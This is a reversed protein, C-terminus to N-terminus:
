WSGEGHPRAPVPSAPADGALAARLTKEAAAVAATLQDLLPGPIAGLGLGAAEVLRTLQSTGPALAAYLPHSLAADAAYADASRVIDSEIRRALDPQAPASTLDLVTLGLRVRFVVQTAPKQDLTLYRDTMAALDPHGTLVALTAAVSQEWPEAITTEALLRDAAQQDGTMHRAIVAIQRGDLLRGGTEQRDGVFRLAQDWDGAQCLARSGDSLLAARLWRLLDDHDDRSRTLGRLDVPRQGICTVAQRAATNFLTTIRDYATAPDGNRAHLRGLNVLPQLALRANAADLPRADSFVGFQTWCLEAALGPLGCDSAILAAYNCAEAAGTCTAATRDATDALAALQRVRVRLPHCLPRGRQVQPFRRAIVDPGAPNV